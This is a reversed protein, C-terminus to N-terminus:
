RKRVRNRKANQVMSVIMQIFLIAIISSVINITVDVIDFHRGPIAIKHWEDIFSIATCIIIAFFGNYFNKIMYLISDILLVVIMGLGSYLFVHALKRILFHVKDLQPAMSDNYIIECVKQAIKMSQGKNEQGDASSLSFMLYLWILAIIILIFTKLFRKM